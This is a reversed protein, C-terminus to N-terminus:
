RSRSSRRPTRKPKRAPLTAVYAAAEGVWRAVAHVTRCGPPTVFVYGLMPRGTFDMPRVHPRALAEAHRDRGVRVMLEDTAV